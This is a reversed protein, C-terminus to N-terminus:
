AGIHVFNVWRAMSYGMRKMKWTVRRLAFAARKHREAVDEDGRLMEEYFHEAMKPGDEDDMEWMTGVVSRFGSFLMGGALHLVEDQLTSPNRNQEATHCAALFAFKAHPLHSKIIDSLRLTDGNYLHLSSEFPDGNAALHGHCIFHVWNNSQMRELVSARTADAEDVSEVFPGLKIM